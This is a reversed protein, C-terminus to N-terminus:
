YEDILEKKVNEVCCKSEEDLLKFLEAYLNPSIKNELLLGKVILIHNRVYHLIKDTKNQQSM